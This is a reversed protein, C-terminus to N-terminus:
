MLVPTDLPKYKARGVDIYIPWETLMVHREDGPPSPTPTGREERTSRPQHGDRGRHHHRRSRLQAPEPQEGAWVGSKLLFLWNVYIHLPESAPKYKLSM